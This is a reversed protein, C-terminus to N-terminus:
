SIKKAFFEAITNKAQMEAEEKVSEIQTKFTKELNKQLDETINKVLLQYRKCTDRDSYSKPSGYRNVEQEFWNECNLVVLEKITYEKDEIKEGYNNTKKVKFKFESDILENLKIQITEVALENVREEIKKGIKNEISSKLSYVVSDILSGENYEEMDVEINMKM